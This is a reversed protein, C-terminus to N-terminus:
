YFWSLFCVFLRFRALSIAILTFSSAALGLTKFKIGLIETTSPPSRSKCATRQGGCPHPSHSSMSGGGCLIFSYIIIVQLNFSGLGYSRLSHTMIGHELNTHTHHNTPLPNDQFIQYCYLTESSGFDLIYRGPPAEPPVRGHQLLLEQAAAKSMFRWRTHVGEAWVVLIGCVGVQQMNYVVFVSEGWRM